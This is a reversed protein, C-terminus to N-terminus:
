ILLYHDYLVTTLKLDIFCCSKKCYCFFIIIFIQHALWFHLSVKPTSDLWLTRNSAQQFTVQMLIEAGGRLYGEM